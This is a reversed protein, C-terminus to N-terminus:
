ATERSSQNMIEDWGIIRKGSKALIARDEQQLLCPTRRQGKPRARSSPKSGRIRTGSCVTTKMAGLISSDTLFLASMEGLFDALLAYTAENTPDLVPNFVGWHREISYPGPL